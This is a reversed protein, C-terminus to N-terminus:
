TGKEVFNRPLTYESDGIEMEAQNETPNAVKDEIWATILYPPLRAGPIRQRQRYNAGGAAPFKQRARVGNTRQNGVHGQCPQTLPQVRGPQMLQVGSKPVNAM